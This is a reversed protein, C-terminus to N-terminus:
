DLPIVCCNKKKTHSLKIVADQHCLIQGTSWDVLTWVLIHSEMTLVQAQASVNKKRIKTAFIQIRGLSDLGRCCGFILSITKNLMKCYFNSDVGYFNVIFSLFFKMLRFQVGYM